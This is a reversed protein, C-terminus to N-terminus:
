VLELVRSEFKLILRAAVALPGLGQIAVELRVVNGRDIGRLLPVATFYVVIFALIQGLLTVVAPLPLLVMPLTLAMALLSAALVGFASRYDISIRMYRAALALGGGFHRWEFPGSQCIALVSSCQQTGNQTQLIGLDVETSPLFDLAGKLIETL